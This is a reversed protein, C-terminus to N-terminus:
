IGAENLVREAQQIQKERHKPSLKVEAAAQGDPIQDFYVRDAEALTAFFHHLDEETTFIKGGIRCHKLHVRQRSQALVGRRCWRWVANASPRGPCLYAAQALTLYDKFM